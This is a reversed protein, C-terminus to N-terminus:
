AVYPGQGIFRDMKASCGFFDEGQAEIVSVSERATVTKPLHSRVLARWELVFNEVLCSLLDSFEAM